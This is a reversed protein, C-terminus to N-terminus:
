ARRSRSLFLSPAPLSPSPLLLFLPLSDLPNGFLSKKACASALMNSTRTEPKPLTQPFYKGRGWATGARGKRPPGSPPGVHQTAPKTGRSGGRRDASSHRGLDTYTPLLALSPSRPYLSFPPQFPISVPHPPLPLPLPLFFSINTIVLMVLPGPWCPVITTTSNNHLKM